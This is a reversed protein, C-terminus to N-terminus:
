LDDVISVRKSYRTQRELSLAGGRGVPEQLQPGKTSDCETCRLVSVRTAIELSATARGRPAGGRYKRAVHAENMGDFVFHRATLYGILDGRVDRMAHGASRGCFFCTCGGMAALCEKQRTTFSSTVLGHRQRKFRRDLWPPLDSGTAIHHYGSAKVIVSPLALRTWREDNEIFWDFSAAMEDDDPDMDCEVIKNARCYKKFLKVLEVRAADYRRHRRKMEYYQLDGPGYKEGREYTGTGDAPVTDEPLDNVADDASQIETVTLRARTRHAIPDDPVDDIHTRSRTRHAVPSSSM